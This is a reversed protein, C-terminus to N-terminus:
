EYDKFFSDVIGKIIKNNKTNYDSNWAGNKYIWKINKCNINDIKYRRLGIVDGRNVCGGGVLLICYHSCTNFGTVSSDNSFSKSMSVVEKNINSSNRYNYDYIVLTYRIKLRDLHRAILYAIYCCGGYNINYLNHLCDCLTDLSNKLHHINLQRM